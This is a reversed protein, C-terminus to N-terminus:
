NTDEGKLKRFGKYILMVAFGGAIISIVWQFNYEKFSGWFTDGVRTLYIKNSQLQETSANLKVSISEPMNITFRRLEMEYHSFVGHSFVGNITVRLGYLRNILSASLENGQANKISTVRIDRADGIVGIAYQGPNLAIDKTQIQKLEISNRTNINDSFDVHEFKAVIPKMWLAILALIVVGYLILEHKEYFSKEMKKSTGQVNKESM